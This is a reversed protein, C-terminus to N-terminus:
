PILNMDYRDRIYDVLENLTQKIHEDDKLLPHTNCMCSGVKGETKYKKYDFTVYFLPIETRNKTLLRTILRM